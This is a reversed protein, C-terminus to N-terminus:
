PKSREPAGRRLLASRRARAALRYANSRPFAIAYVKLSGEAQIAPNLIDVM